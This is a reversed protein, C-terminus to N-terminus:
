VLQVKIENVLTKYENQMLDWRNNNYQFINRLGSNFVMDIYKGFFDIMEERSSYSRNDLTNQVELRLEYMFVENFWKYVLDRTIPKSRLFINFMSLRFIRGFCIRSSIRAVLAIKMIDIIWELMDSVTDSNRCVIDFTDRYHSSWKSSNQSQMNRLIDNSILIARPPYRLLLQLTKPIQIGEYSDIIVKWTKNLLRLAQYEIIMKRTMTKGDYIFGLIKWMNEICINELTYKKVITVVNRQRKYKLTDM